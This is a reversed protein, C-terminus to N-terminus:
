IKIDKQMKKAIKEFMVNGENLVCIQFDDCMPRLLRNTRKLVHAMQGVGYWNGPMMNMAALGMKSIKHISFAQQPAVLEGNLQEEPYPNDFIHNLINFYIKQKQPDEMITEIDFQKFIEEEQYQEKSKYYFSPEIFLHRMLTNAVLMQGVRLTCGWNM